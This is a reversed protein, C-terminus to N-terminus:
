SQSKSQSKEMDHAMSQIKKALLIGSEAVELGKAQVAIHILQILIQLEEKTFM